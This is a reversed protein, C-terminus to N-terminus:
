SPNGWVWQGRWMVAQVPASSGLILEHPDQASRPELPLVVLDASKGAVLSGTQQQWSLAEAGSLTAMRLLAAGAVDPYREHLFRVEALVSLDPNSALSDTGLAVRVGAALYDRFPHPPHGFAAHTRPCYVITGGRPIAAARDLYNGHVFLVPAVEEYLQLVHEPNRVLGDPDYVGLGTLFDVFPGHQHQLLLREAPTEALHIAVPFHHRRALSAVGRLLPARVSFPAHPSFGPRCTATAPHAQWWTRGERWALHARSRPLGLLEYFVVGWLSAKAVLPWSLGQGSIDGLLTTGHALSEELGQQVAATVQEPSLGRRHQIVGGLWATFASAPSLHGRLGSLDLHTHANVLGPLVAVDGLDLDVSQGSSAEVAVVNGGDITLTGDELPLGEVPFVWRAKLTWPSQGPATYAMAFPEAVFM